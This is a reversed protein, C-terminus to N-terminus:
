EGFYNAEVEFREEMDWCLCCKFEECDQCIWLGDWEYCYHGFRGSHNDAIQCAGTDHAYIGFPDKIDELTYTTM